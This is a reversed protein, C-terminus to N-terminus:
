SKKRLQKEAKACEWDEEVHATLSEYFNKRAESEILEVYDALIDQRDKDYIIYGNYLDKPSIVLPSNYITALTPAVELYGTFTKLITSIQSKDQFRNIENSDLNSLIELIKGTEVEQFKGEGVYRINLFPIKESPVILQKSSLFGLLGPYNDDPYIYKLEYCFLNKTSVMYVEDKKISFQKSKVEM